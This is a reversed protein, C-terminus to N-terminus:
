VESLGELQALTVVGRNLADERAELYFGAMATQMYPIVYFIALLGFTLGSLFIWGIFSLQFVFLQWKHGRMIRMSLKRANRATVNPCDGLIYMTLSYSYTKIIGPISFLMSWLFIFLQMWLFGGLKRGFNTFGQQFPTGVSVANGRGQFVQTYFYNMGATMPGLFLIGCIGFTFSACVGIFIPILLSVLMSPWYCGSMGSKAWGKIEARPRMTKESWEWIRGPGPTHVM